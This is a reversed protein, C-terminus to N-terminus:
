TLTMTGDSVRNMGNAKKRRRANKKLVYVGDTKDKTWRELLRMLAYSLYVSANLYTLSQSGERYARLSDLAIDLIDGNYIIQQQLLDAAEALTPDAIDSRSM